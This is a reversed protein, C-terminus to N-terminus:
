RDGKREPPAGFDLEAPHPPEDDRRSKPGVVQGRHNDWTMDLGYLADDRAKGLIMRLLTPDENNFGEDGREEYYYPRFPFLVVDADDEIRGSDKLDALRPRRDPRKEVSRNLQSLLCLGIPPDEECAAIVAALFRNIERTPDEYPICKQLYDIVVVTLGHQQRGRRIARAITDARRNTHDLWIHLNALKSAGGTMANWTQTSRESPGSIHRYPVGSERALFRKSLRHQTTEADFIGIREGNGAWRRVLYQAVSTKGISPRGAIVLKGGRELLNLRDIAAEGTLIMEGTAGQDAKEAVKLLNIMADKMPVWGDGVVQGVKNFAGMSNELLDKGRLESRVLDSAIRRVSRDIAYDRILEALRKMDVIFSVEADLKGLQEVTVEPGANRRTWDEISIWDPTVGDGWLAGLAQYVRRCTPDRFESAKLDHDHYQEPRLLLKGVFTREASEADKLLLELERGM